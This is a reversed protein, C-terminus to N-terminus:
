PFHNFFRPDAVNANSDTIISFSFLPFSLFPLLSPTFPYGTAWLCSITMPVRARSCYTIITATLYAPYGGLLAGSSVSDQLICPSDKYGTWGHTQRNTQGAVMGHCADSLFQYTGDTWEDTQRDTWGAIKGHCTDIQPTLALKQFTHVLRQSAQGLRQSTQGLRQSAKALM